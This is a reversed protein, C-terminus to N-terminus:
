NEEEGEMVMLAAVRAAIEGSNPAANDRVGGRRQSAEERVTQLQLLLEVRM